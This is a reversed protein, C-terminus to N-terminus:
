KVAHPANYNHHKGHKKNFRREARNQARGTYKNSIAEMDRRTTESLAMVQGFGEMRVGLDNNKPFVKDATGAGFLDNFFDDICRCQFRMGDATSKGEYNAQDQIKVQIENNLREFREVVDADMLNLELEVNNVMVKSM